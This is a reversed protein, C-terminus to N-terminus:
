YSSQRLGKEKQRKKQWNKRKQAKDKEKASIFFIRDEAEHRSACVRLEEVLFQVARETHQGRVEAVMDQLEYKM